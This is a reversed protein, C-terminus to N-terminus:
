FLMITLQWMMLHQMKIRVVTDPKWTRSKPEPRIPAGERMLDCSRNPVDRLTQMIIQATETARPMTSYHLTTYSHGLEKLRQGTIAAQKRGLETLIRKDPDHPDWVYQGHRILLLTRTATSKAVEGEKGENGVKPAMKDWNYDWKGGEQDEVAQEVLSNARLPLRVHRYFLVAGLVGASGTVLSVLSPM